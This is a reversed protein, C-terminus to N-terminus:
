RKTMFYFYDCVKSVNDPVATTSLWCAQSDEDSPDFGHMGNLPKVGMDSPCFQVGAAALFIADGFKRDERWIGHYKMEEESLWHGPFDKFANLVKEKAEKNLWWFRAMTSDIASAFDKGWVLGTNALASPADITSKLPTMGHDSFVTLQFPRGASALAEHVKRIRQEYQKIKPALKEDKGVFDHQLADFDASYIFARDLEGKALLDTAIKFNEEESKRWDSIHFNMGQESWVDALNKVPALGGKVFLDTKECYDLMPLHELPVGYLQFYGTFGYLKKILRSLVNRVRGRKWFSKPWFLPAIYKMASFPSREPAWDYFALHGHEAPRVGTLITPIATCSYGFQMEIKRRNPLLDNLFGYKCAQRWGLADVFIFVKVLNQRQQTAALSKQQAEFDQKKCASPSPNAKSEIEQPRFHVKDADIGEDVVKSKIISM